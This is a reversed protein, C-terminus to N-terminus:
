GSVAKILILAVPRPILDSINKQYAKSLSIELSQLRRFPLLGKNWLLFHIEAALRQFRALSSVRNNGRMMMLIIMQLKRGSLSAFGFDAQKPLPVAILYTGKV